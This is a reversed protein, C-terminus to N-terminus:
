RVALGAYIQRLREADNAWALRDRAALCRGRLEALRDGELLAAIASGTARPDSLDACEVVGHRERMAQFFPLEHALVPVGSLVYEFFKNPSCFRHNLDIPLYPIVGLDAQVTYGLMEESPVRGLFHVRQGLGKEAVIRRLEAEHEGYGIVALRAPEPVFEMARVVTEINREASIWGQFLVIPGDGPVADRLTGRREEVVERPPPECSNYVVWPMPVGHIRHLEAAIFENVTIVAACGPLCEKEDRLLRARLAPPFTEQAHYLEHADFVVPVNWLRGLERGSRLVPLDHCHVIDAPHGLGKEVIFREFSTLRLFRRLFAMFVRNVVKHLGPRNGLRQRVTKLREDDWDYVHRHIEIGDLQYHEEERCEFGALLVVEHGAARLVQAEQLIRRDIMQADPTLMLVRM